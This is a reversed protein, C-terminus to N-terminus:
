LRPTFTLIYAIRRTKGSALPRKPRHYRIHLHAVEVLRRTTRDVRRKTTPPMMTIHKDDAHRNRTASPTIPRMASLAPM